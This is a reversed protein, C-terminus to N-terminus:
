HFPAAVRRERQAGIIVLVNGLGEHTTALALQWLTNRPNSATILKYNALGDGYAALAKEYQKLAGLVNGLRNYSAAVEHQWEDNGPDLVILGQTTALNKRCVALPEEFWGNLFLQDGLREQAFSLDRQLEVNDLEAASTLDSGM